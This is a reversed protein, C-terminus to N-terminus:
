FRSSLLSPAQKSVKLYPSLETDEPRWGRGCGFARGAAGSPDSLLEIEQPLDIMEALATAAAPSANLVFMTRDVGASKLAPLYHRLRQAYEIANFDAADLLRWSPRLHAECFPGALCM